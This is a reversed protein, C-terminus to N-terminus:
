RGHEARIWGDIVRGGPGDARVEVLVGDALAEAIAAEIEIAAGVPMPRPMRLALERLEVPGALAGLVHEVTVSLTCMGHAIAAPQGARRAFADDLHLPNFDGSAAAFRSVRESDITLPDRWCVLDGPKPAESVVAIIRHRVKLTSV